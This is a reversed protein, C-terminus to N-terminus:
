RSLGAAAARGGGLLRDKWALRELWGDPIGGLGYLAGALQGTVAAVTDADDALNAALLVANKFNGTCAVSWISAELTHVVYGSSRIENRPRGLWSGAMVRAIAEAGEFRRPALVDARPSGAIADALLEAFARCADVAEETGHTTRSQEAATAALRPPDDWFRLAVPALRMLSGNGASRSDTPGALPDDTRLYRDLAARTTNGIDFCVGVHSYDGDQWWRVFRDMLDRADLAEAAALSDALALAMATDDTWGGPPLEFPGGGEMDQLRPQKDRARFELTTGVADGVALGLFAGLARERISNPHKSPVSPPRPVCQRVHDEQVATQIAGPRVDRVRRIAEDTREGLEVLLRAAITGARGLGGRCHILVDFGLRLRDRLAEGAVSWSDEFGQAPPSEGDQIPLHWWEMHRDRVKDPLDRVELLDFEHEEMLTVVATTGWRQIADLDTDLDRAWAGSMGRPDRKGPCLTIGIRGYGDGPTVAAIRIPSSESTKATSMSHSRERPPRQTTARLDLRESYQVASDGRFLRAVFSNAPTRRIESPTGCQVIQGRQLVAIRNAIELADVPGRTAYIVTRRRPMPHLAQLARIFARRDAAVGFGPNKSLDDVLLLDQRDPNNPAAGEWGIHRVTGDRSRISFHVNDAEESWGGPPERSSGDLAMNPFAYRRIQVGRWRESRWAPPFADDGWSFRWGRILGPKQGSEDAESGLFVGGRGDSRSGVYRLLTTKGAGAPGVVAAIEGSRVFLSLSDLVPRPADRYRFTIADLFIYM